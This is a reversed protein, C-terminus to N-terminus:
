TADPLRELERIAHRIQARRIPIRAQAPAKPNPVLVTHGANIRHLMGCLASAVAEFQRHNWRAANVAIQAFTLQGAYSWWFGARSTHTSCFAAITPPRSSAQALSYGAFSMAAATVVVVPLAKM